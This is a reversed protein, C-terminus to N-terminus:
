EWDMGYDPLLALPLKFDSAGENYYKAAKKEEESHYGTIHVFVEYRNIKRDKEICIEFDNIVNISIGTAVEFVDQNVISVSDPIQINQDSIFSLAATDLLAAIRKAATEDARIASMVIAAM